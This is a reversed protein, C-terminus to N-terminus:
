RLGGKPQPETPTDSPADAEALRERLSALARSVTSRVTGPRCGVAKAIDTDSLDDYFRLVLVARSKPPLSDLLQSVLDRDTVSRAIDPEHGGVPPDAFPLESSVRARRHNLFNNTLSKRVYAMPADASSVRSWRPYLRVFTDQVLEEGAQQSGTLLYASRLLTTTNTRVFAAFDSNDIM